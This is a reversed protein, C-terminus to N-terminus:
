RGAVGADASTSPTGDRLGLTQYAWYDPGLATQEWVPMTVSGAAAVIRTAVGFAADLGVTTAYTNDLGFSNATNLALSNNDSTQVLSVVMANATQTAVAAPQYTTSSSPDVAQSVSALDFPTGTDVGRFAMAYGWFGAGPENVSFQPNTESGSHVKWYIWQSIGGPGYDLFLKSGRIVYGTHEATIAPEPSDEGAGMHVIILDGTTVGAPLAFTAPSTTVETLAGVGVLTIAM